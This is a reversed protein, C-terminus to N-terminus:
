LMDKMYKVEDGSLAEDVVLLDRMYGDFTPRRMSDRKLGIDFVKHNNNTLDLPGNAVSKSGKIIGDIYLIGEKRDRSWTFAVHMWKSPIIKRQNHSFLVCFPILSQAFRRKEIYMRPLYIARPYVSSHEVHRKRNVLIVYVITPFCSIYRSCRGAVSILCKVHQVLSIECILVFEIVEMYLSESSIHNQGTLISIFQIIM